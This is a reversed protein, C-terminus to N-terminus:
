VFLIKIQFTKTRTERVSCVQHFTATINIFSGASITIRSCPCSITNPYLAQLREYQFQSPNNMEVIVTQRSLATYGTLITMALILLILYIRTAYIQNERVNPPDDHVETYINVKKIYTILQYQWVRAQQIFPM